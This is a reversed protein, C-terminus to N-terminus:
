PEEEFILVLGSRGADEVNQTYVGYGCSESLVLRERLDLRRMLDADSLASVADFRRLFEMARDHAVSSVAVASLRGVEGPTMFSEGSCWGAQGKWWTDDIAVVASPVDFVTQQALVHRVFEDPLRVDHHELYHALGAPWVWAGDSLLTSALSAGCRFRCWSLGLGIATEHGGRLHDAVCRREATDWSSDVFWAPDPWAPEQRSRWYGVLILSGM